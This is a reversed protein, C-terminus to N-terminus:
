ALRHVDIRTSPDRYPPMWEGALEEITSPWQGCAEFARRHFGRASARVAISIVVDVRTIAECIRAPDDAHHESLHAWLARRLLDYEHFLAADAFGQKLREEGHHAALHLVDGLPTEDPTEGLALDVLMPLLRPLDNRRDSRSRHVRPDPETLEEFRELIRASHERVGSRIDQFHDM